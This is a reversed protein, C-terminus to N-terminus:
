PQLAGVPTHAPGPDHGHLEVRAGVGRGQCDEPESSRQAVRALMVATIFPQQWPWRCRSSSTGGTCGFVASVAGGRQVM